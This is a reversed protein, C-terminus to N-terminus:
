RLGDNALDVDGHRTREERGLSDIFSVLTDQVSESHIDNHGFGELIDIMKPESAADFITQAMSVPFLEDKDGHLILVPAAVDAIQPVNSLKETLLLSVPLWPFRERAAEAISTYPSQLVVGDVRRKTAVETAIGTGLSEGYLVMKRDAFGDDSSARDVILLADEILTRYSPSGSSNGYGRYDLAIFGYGLKQFMQFTEYRDELNGANGHFFVIVPKEKLGKWAWTELREGDPTDLTVVAADRLGFAEPKSAVQTPFYIMHRQLFAMGMCAVAYCAVAIVLLRMLYILM